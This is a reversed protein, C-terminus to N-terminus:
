IIINKLKEYDEEELQDIPIRREETIEKSSLGLWTKEKRTVMKSITMNNNSEGINFTKANKIFEEENEAKKINPERKPNDTALVTTLDRLDAIKIKHESEVMTGHAAGIPADLFSLGDEEDLCVATNRLIFPLTRSYQPYKKILRIIKSKDSISVSLRCGVARSENRDEQAEGYSNYKPVSAHVSLLVLSPDKPHPLLKIEWSDSPASDGPGMAVPISGAEGNKIFNLALLKDLKSLKQYSEPLMNYSHHDVGKQSGYKKIARPGNKKSYLYFIPDEQDAFDELLDQVCEDIAKREQPTLLEIEKLLNEHEFLSWVREIKSDELEEQIEKKDSLKRAERKSQVVSEDIPLDVPLNQIESKPIEDGDINQKFEEPMIKLSYVIRWWPAVLFNNYQVM